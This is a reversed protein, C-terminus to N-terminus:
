VLAAALGGLILGGIAGMTILTNKRLSLVPPETLVVPPDVVPPKEVNEKIKKDVPVPVTFIDQRATKRLHRRDGHSRRRTKQIDDGSSESDFSSVSSRDDDSENESSNSEESDSRNHKKKARRPEKEQKRGQEPSGTDAPVDDAADGPTDAGNVWVTRDEVLGQHAPESM